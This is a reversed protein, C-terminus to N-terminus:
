DELPYIEKKIPAKPKSINVTNEHNILLVDFMKTGLENCCVEPSNSIVPTRTTPKTLFPEGTVKARPQIVTTIVPNLM